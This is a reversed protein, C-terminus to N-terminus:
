GIQFGTIPKLYPLSRNAQRIIGTRCRAHQSDCAPVDARQRASGSAGAFPQNCREQVLSRTLGNCGDVVLDASAGARSDGTRSRWQRVVHEEPHCVAFGREIAGIAGVGRSGPVGSIPHEFHEVVEVVMSAIIGTSKTIAAIIRHKDSPSLPHDELHLSHYYFAAYVQLVTAERPDLALKKTLNEAVWAAFMKMGLPSVNLLLSPAESVWATNLRGRLVIFDYETKNRVVFAQKHPDYKGFARADVVVDTTEEKRNDLVIPHAFAPVADTMAIGGILERTRSGPIMQLHGTYLVTDLAHETRTMVFDQCAFTDYASRFITM